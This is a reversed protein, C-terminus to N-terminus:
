VTTRVCHDDVCHDGGLLQRPIGPACLIFGRAGTPYLFRLGERIPVGDVWGRRQAVGASRDYAYQAQGHVQRHMASRCDCCSCGSIGIHFRCAPDQLPVGFLERHAGACCCRGYSLCGRTISAAAHKMIAGTSGKFHFIDGKRLWHLQISWNVHQGKDDYEPVQMLMGMKGGAVPMVARYDVKQATPDDNITM